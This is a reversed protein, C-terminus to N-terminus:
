RCSFGGLSMDRASLDSEVPLGLMIGGGPISAMLDIRGDDPSFVEFGSPINLQVGYSNRYVLNEALLRREVFKKTQNAVAQKENPGNTHAVYVAIAGLIRASGAFILLLAVPLLWRKPAITQKQKFHFHLAIFGMLLPGIAEYFKAISESL